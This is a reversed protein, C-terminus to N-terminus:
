ALRAASFDHKLSTARRLGDLATEFFTLFSWRRWLRRTFSSGAGAALDTLRVFLAAAGEGLRRRFRRTSATEGPM